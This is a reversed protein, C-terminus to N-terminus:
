RSAARGLDPLAAPARSTRTDTFLSVPLAVGRKEFKSLFAPRLGTTRLSGVVVRDSTVEDVKFEFIEQMTIVESEM